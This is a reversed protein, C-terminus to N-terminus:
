VAASRSVWSYSLRSFEARAQSFRTRSADTAQFGKIEKIGEIM